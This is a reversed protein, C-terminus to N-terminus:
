AHSSLIFDTISLQQTYRTNGVPPAASRRSGNLEPAARAPEAFVICLTFYISCVTKSQKAAGTLCLDFCLLKEPQTFSPLVHRGMVYTWVTHTLALRLRCFGDVYVPHTTVKYANAYQVKVHFDDTLVLHASMM